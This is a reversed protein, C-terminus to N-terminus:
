NRCFNLLNTSVNAVVSFIIFYFLINLFSLEFLTFEKCYHEM